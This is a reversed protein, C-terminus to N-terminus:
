DGEVLVCLVLVSVYKLMILYHLQINTDKVNGFGVGWILPM